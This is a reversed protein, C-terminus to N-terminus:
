DGLVDQLLAMRVYMGNKAQRFYIANPLKDVAVDIEDIRPLPDM